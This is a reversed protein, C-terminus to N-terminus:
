PLFRIIGPPCVTKIRECLPEDKNGRGSNSDPDAAHGEPGVVRGSKPNVCNVKIVPTCVRIPPVVPPVVPPVTV